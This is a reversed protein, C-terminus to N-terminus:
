SDVMIFCFLSSVNEDRLEITIETHWWPDPLVSMDHSVHLSIPSINDNYDSFNQTIKHSCLIDTSIWVLLM